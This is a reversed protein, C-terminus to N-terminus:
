TPMTDRLIGDWRAALADLSFRERLDAHLDDPYPAEALLREVGALLAVPDAPPVLAIGAAEGPVLERIGPGERTVLPRGASLIQFVKNPIVRGAKASDGFVGLCVDAASIRDVLEPYPVWAVWEFSAPPDEALMRGIEGAKQGTGIVLWDIPRDGALRAAEVITAIGHLPIFQGYFLVSARAGRVRAPAPPFATAEAGVLASTVRTKGLGYAGRFLEAQAETDLVVRDAARCALWEWGRLLFAAPHWRSVMGRDAVVTDHLSLFADWVVPTGRLRALPWLLLVDLHGLYGVVVVDPRPARVFRWFLRPYAAIWRAARKLAAGKGLVSKDEAGEWVPAHIESVAAGSRRIAERMLRVRPKGLDYTGWILVTLRQRETGPLDIREETCVRIARSM